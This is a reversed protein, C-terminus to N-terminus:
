NVALTVSATHGGPDATTTPTNIRFWLGRTASPAVSLGNGVGSNDGFVQSTAAVASGSMYDSIWSSEANNPGSNTFQGAIAYTDQGVTNSAVQLVWDTGATDSIANGAKLTYTEILSGSNNTVTISSGSVVASSTPIAGFSYFTTNVSLNKSVNISVHIDLSQPNSAKASSHFAVVALAASLCWLTVKKMSPKM